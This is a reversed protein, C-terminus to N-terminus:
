RPIRPIPSMRTNQGSRKRGSGWHAASALPEAQDLDGRDILTTALNDLSLALTPHDPGLAKENIKLARKLLREAKDFDGRANEILALNSLAAAVRPHEPGLVHEWIERARQPM